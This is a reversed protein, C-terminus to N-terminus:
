PQTMESLARPPPYKYGLSLLRSRLQDEIRYMESQYEALGEPRTTRYIGSDGRLSAVTEVNQAIRDLSSVHIPQSGELTDMAKNAIAAIQRVLTIYEDATQPPTLNDM